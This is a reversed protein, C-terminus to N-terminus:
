AMETSLASFADLVEQVYDVKNKMEPRKAVVIYAVHDGLQISGVAEVYNQKVPRIKNEFCKDNFRDFWDEYGTVFFMHTPMFHEIEKNLLDACSDFTLNKLAKDPNGGFTPAIKYLNSWVISEFWRYKWAKEVDHGSLRCWIDKSYNWLPASLHYPFASISAESSDIGPRVKNTPASYEDKPDGIWEFRDQGGCLVSQDNFLNNLSSEVFETQTLTDAYNRMEDWGNVARGVLMFKFNPDDGYHQGKMATFSTLLPKNYPKTFLECQMKDATIDSFLQNYIQAFDDRKEM